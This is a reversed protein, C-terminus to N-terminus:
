EEDDDGELESLDCVLVDGVIYDGAHLFDHARWTARSNPPLQKRKGDEDLLYIKNGIGVAEVYGGGIYLKLEELTFTAGHAPTVTREIGDTTILLAMLALGQEL